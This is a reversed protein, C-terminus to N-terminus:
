WAKNRRGATDLDVGDGLGPQWAGASVLPRARAQLSEPPLDVQWVADDGVLLVGLAPTGTVGGMECRWATSGPYVVGNVLAQQVSLRALTVPRALPAPSWVGGGGGSGVRPRTLLSLRADKPEWSLACVESGAAARQAATSLLSACEEAENQAARAGMGGLRPVVLAALVSILIIVVVLEVLTFGRGRRTARRAAHVVRPSSARAPSSLNANM